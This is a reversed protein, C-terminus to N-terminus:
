RLALWRMAKANTFGAEPKADGVFLKHFQQRERECGIREALKMGAGLTAPMVFRRLSADSGELGGMGALIRPRRASGAAMRQAQRHLLTQLRPLYLLDIGIGLIVAKAVLNSNESSDASTTAKSRLSSFAGEVQDKLKRAEKEVQKEKQKLLGESDHVNQEAKKGAESRAASTSGLLIGEGKDFIADVVHEVPKDFLYPLAPVFALGAVTPGAARVRANSSKAFLPASYRVISHITFAPLAMSAISQFVARRAVVLGINTIESHHPSLTADNSIDFQRKKLEVKEAPSLKDIDNRAKLLSNNISELPSVAEHHALHAKYGAYGVDLALYAWSIGYAARVVNPSTLPRFAEGVDSSYAIYRSSATILTRLRMLYAAYRGPGGDLGDGIPDASAQAPSSM